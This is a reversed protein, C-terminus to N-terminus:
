LLHRYARRRGLTQPSQAQREYKVQLPSWAQPKQNELVEELQEEALRLNDVYLANEKALQYNLALCGFQLAVETDIWLTDTVERIPVYKKKARLIIQPSTTSTNAFERHNGTLKYETFEPAEQHADYRAVFEYDPYDPHWALVRVFGRTRPKQVNVIRGLTTDLRKVDLSPTVAEQQNQGAYDEVFFTITETEEASGQAALRWGKRPRKQFPNSMGTKILQPGCCSGCCSEIGVNSFTQYFEDRVLMTQNCYWANRVEDLHAPLGFCCDPALICGYEITGKWDGRPWLLRSVRDLYKIIKEEQGVCSGNIGVFPAVSELIDKVILAM